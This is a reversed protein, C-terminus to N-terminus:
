ATCQLWPKHGPVEVSIRFYLTDDKLYQFMNLDSHSIFKPYGWGNKVKKDLTFHVVESHHNVDQFQNLLDFTVDGIFPWSLEADYLGKVIYAYVSIHSGEGDGCGNLYVKTKMHYGNPSTYFSPSIFRENKSRRREFETIKFTMFEGKHLIHKEVEKKLSTVNEELESDKKRLEAIENNLKVVTDIAKDLHATDDQEHSRMIKRKLKVDCGINTCKCAIVTHECENEIHDDIKIRKIRMSCDENTCAVDKEPCIQDHRQKDAYPGKQGCQDCEYDRNPCNEALHHELDKRTIMLIGNDDKCEKPCPIQIFECVNLHEKLTDVIGEWQCDRDVNNCKVRLKRIERWGIILYLTAKYM